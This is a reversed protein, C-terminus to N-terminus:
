AAAAQTSQVSGKDNVLSGADLVLAQNAVLTGTTNDV